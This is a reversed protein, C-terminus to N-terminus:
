AGLNTFIPVMIMILIGIFTLCMPILLKNNALEGKRRVMQKKLEWIEKSQQILMPALETNGQSVGQILTSAFKKVEPLLSRQAFLYLADTFPKGNSMEEVSRRMERYLIRDGSASVRAWAENVIMGSNVLLALKSVVESFDTLVEDARKEILQEMATGYYYYVGGSGALLLVFLLMSDTLFYLPAAFCAVTLAMTFRMSYVVRLYYDTYKPEYLVGLQKRLMRCAKNKYELKLRLTLAYGVFYTDGMPFDEPNLQEFMQEYQKGSFYLGLWLILLVVGIGLVIIDSIGFYAM